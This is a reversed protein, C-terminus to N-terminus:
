LTNQGDQGLKQTRYYPGPRNWTNSRHFFYEMDSLLNFQFRESSCFCKWWGFKEFHNAELILQGGIRKNFKLFLFIVGFLWKMNKPRRSEFLIASLENKREFMFFFFINSIKKSTYFFSHTTEWLFLLTAIEIDLSKYKFAYYYLATIKSLM